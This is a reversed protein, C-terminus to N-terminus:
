CRQRGQGPVWLEANATHWESPLQILKFRSSLLSICFLPSEEEGPVGYVLLAARKAKAASVPVLGLLNSDLGLWCHVVAFCSESCASM